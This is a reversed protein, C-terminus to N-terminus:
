EKTNKYLYFLLGVAVINLFGYVALLNRSSSNKEISYEIMASQVDSKLDNNQLISSHTALKTRAADLSDNLANVDTNYYASLTNARSNVLTKMVLLIGNLDNNLTTLRSRMTSTVPSNTAATALMNTLAFVYRSYYWCYEANISNRLASASAAFMQAPNPTAGTPERPLISLPPIAQSNPILTNNVFNNLINTDVSGDSKIVTSPPIASPIGAPLTYRQTYNDLTISSDAPCSSM